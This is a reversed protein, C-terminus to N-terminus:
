ERQRGGGGLSGPASQTGGAGPTSSPLADGSQGDPAGGGNGYYGGGAVLIYRGSRQIDSQGGGGSYDSAWSYGGGGNYGAATSNLSSTGGQGGVNITLVEGGTVALTAQVKGGGGAGYSGGMYYHNIVRGGSAGLAEVTISSVGIPVTYTQPSGTANFTVTGYQFPQETSSLSATWRVGDWSNLKDTTTNYITLGVAPGQIADRQAETLRPPLLGQSTSTLDLVASADPATTGVGVSGGKLFLTPDGTLATYFGLGISNSLIRATYDATLDNAFDLYAAGNTGRLEINSNGSAGGSLFIGTTNSISTKEDTRMHLGAGPTTTGIGVRGVTANGGVDLLQGPTATGIGVNGGPLIRLREAEGGTPGTSVLVSGGDRGALILQKGNTRLVANGPQALSSYEGGNAALGLNLSGSTNSIGLSVPSTASLQVSGGALGLPYGALGLTTAKTLPGGLGVASGTQTLGNGFTLAVGTATTLQQWAPAAPTGANYYFGAPGDTQFVLLGTAPGAIAAVQAQTLRPLLLGKGSSVIDLAALADPATTGIGVGGTTQAQTLRPTTALLLLAM